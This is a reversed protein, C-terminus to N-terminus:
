GAVSMPALQAYSTAQDVEVNWDPNNHRITTDTRDVSSSSPQTPKLEDSVTLPTGIATQTGYRAFTPAPRHAVPGAAKLLRGVISPRLLSM